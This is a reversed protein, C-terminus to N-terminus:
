ECIDYKAAVHEFALEVFLDHWEDFTLPAPYLRALEEAVYPARQPAFKMGNLLAHWKDPAMPTSGYREVAGWAMLPIFMFSRPWGRFSDPVPARYPTNSVKPM